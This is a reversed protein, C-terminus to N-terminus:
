KDYCALFFNSRPLCPPVASLRPLPAWDMELEDRIVNGPLKTYLTFGLRLQDGLYFDVSVQTGGQPLLTLFCHSHWTGEISRTPM